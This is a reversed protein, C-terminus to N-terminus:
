AMMLGPGAQEYVEKLSLPYFANNKPGYIYNNMM